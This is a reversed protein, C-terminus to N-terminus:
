ICSISHLKNYLPVKKKGKKEEEFNRKFDIDVCRTKKNLFFQERLEDYM